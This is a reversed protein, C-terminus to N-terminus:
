TRVSLTDRNKEMDKAVQMRLHRGHYLGPTNSIQHFCLLSSATTIKDM